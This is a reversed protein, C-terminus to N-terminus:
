EAPKGACCESCWSGTGTLGTTAATICNRMRTADLRPAQKSSEPRKTSHATMGSALGAHPPIRDPVEESAESGNGPVHCHASVSSRVNVAGGM